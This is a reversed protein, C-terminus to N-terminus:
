LVDAFGPKLRQFVTAGIVLFALTVTWFYLGGAYEHWFPVHYLLSGRYGEVIYCLPNLRLLPRYQEPMIDLPWVIPTAWFWVNLAVKLVQSMDRYYVNAAAVVWSLGLCFVSMAGLYYLSQVNFLSFTVGHLPMLVALILLLIGHGVLAALLQVGPLIETPFITKKALFPNKVIAEASNTLAESFMLFPMVGCIYMLVYPVHGVSQVRFGVSFVFWYVLIMALPSLVSWTLGGITGVYRAHIEQGAMLRIVSRHVVLLKLCAWLRTM